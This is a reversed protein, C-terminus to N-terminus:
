DTYVVEIDETDPHLAVWTNGPTLVIEDGDQDFYKTVDEYNERAWTGTIHIGDIVFDAYGTGLVDIIRRGSNEKVKPLNVHQIILNQVTLVDNTEASIFPKNGMHRLLLNRKTDYTYNVYNDGGYFPLVIKQIVNGTYNKAENYDYNFPIPRPEYDYLKVIKTADCIVNHPAKKETDRVFYDSWKGKLGDVRIKIHSSDEDYVYSQFGPDSPGGYHVFICDYQQQMKIYYIRASRVPEIKKPLSDNFIAMFRTISSEVPAEFVIDAMQLGYQPRAAPSNEVIVAIPTYKKNMGDSFESFPIGTLKSVNETSPTPETTPIITHIPSPTPSTTQTPKVSEEINLTNSQSCASFSITLLLVLIIMFIDYKNM